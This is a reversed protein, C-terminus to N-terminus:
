LNKTMSFVNCRNEFRYELSDMMQKCLFIGLGGVKRKELPANIDPDEMSLPDFEVGGDRFGITLKTDTREVSVEVWTSGSYCLINEEVEEVCLRIKFKLGDNIDKLEDCNMVSEIIDANRGEIPDFRHIM